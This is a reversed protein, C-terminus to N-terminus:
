IHSCETWNEAGACYKSRQVGTLVNGLRLTCGVREKIAVVRGTLQEVHSM